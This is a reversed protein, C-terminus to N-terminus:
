VYNDYMAYQHRLFSGFVHREHPTLSVKEADNIKDILYGTPILDFYKEFDIQVAFLKGDYEFERLALIADFVNKNPHYAYSSSSLRKINRERTRRMVVNALAADPISFAMIGRKSGDPKPIQYNIAPIPEYQGILIKHWITK